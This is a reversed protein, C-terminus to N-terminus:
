NVGDWNVTFEGQANVMNIHKEFGNELYWKYEEILQLYGKINEIRGYYVQMLSDQSIGKLKIGSRGYKGTELLQTDMTYVLPTGPSTTSEVIFKFPLITYGPYTQRLGETYFAGQIDYRRQRLAKPFNMTNDGLTKIDIPVIIKATHDIIVMDLLGKCDVENITFFIPVQYMIEEGENHEFYPSTVENTKISMVIQSILSDEEASLITKGEGAKLDDWYEWAECVKAIRTAEKWNNQYNHENCVIICYEPYDQINGISQDCTPNRINFAKVEDFVQNIISKMTDSPKNEVNSVHFKEAYETIPRTLQCDVGDGILFYKKEEFYLKPEAVTNFLNPNNGLLLKLKSQSLRSDNYYEEVVM